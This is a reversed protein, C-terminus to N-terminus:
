SKITLLMKQNVQKLKLMFVQDEEKLNKKTYHLLVLQHPNKRQRWASLYM